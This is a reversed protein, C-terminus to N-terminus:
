PKTEAAMGWLHKRRWLAFTRFPSLAWRALGLGEMQQQGAKIGALRAVAHRGAEVVIVFLLPIVVHLAIGTPDPWAVKANFFITATTLLWAMHRLAPYPM